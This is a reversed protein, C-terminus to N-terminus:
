PRSTSDSAGKGTPRRRLPQDEFPTESPGSVHVVSNAKPEGSVSPVRRSGHQDALNQITTVTKKHQEFETGDALKVTMDLTQAVNSQLPLGTRRDLRCSGMSQGGRVSVEIEPRDGGGKNPIAPSMTGQVELEAFESTLRRLQYRTSCLMPLPRLFQREHTWADGERVAAPPLVGISDDVFDAVAQACSDCTMADRTQQQWAKPINRVCRDVFQEFAIVESIQNDQNLCFEFGNDKLGHYGCAAAPVPDPPNDSDYEITEQGSLQQSFRIRQYRVELWKSDPRPSGFSTGGAATARVDRVTVVFLIELNSRSVSWGELTSQSLTQEVTKLLPFRDGPRLHVELKQQPLSITRMTQPEESAIVDDSDPDDPEVDWSSCGFLWILCVVILAIAAGAKRGVM